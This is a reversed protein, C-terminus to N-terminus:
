KVARLAERHNTTGHHQRCLKEVAKAVAAGDEFFSNPRQGLDIQLEPLKGLASSVTFTAAGVKKDASIAAQAKELDAAKDFDAIVVAHAGKLNRHHHPSDAEWSEDKADTEISGFKPAPVTVKSPLAVEVRWVIPWFDRWADSDPDEVFYSSRCPTM